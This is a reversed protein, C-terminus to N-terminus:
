KSQLNKRKGGGVDRHTHTHTHAHTHTHPGQQKGGGGWLGVWGLLNLFLIGKLIKPLHHFYGKLNYTLSPHTWGRSWSFLPARVYNCESLKGSVDSVVRGQLQSREDCVGLM